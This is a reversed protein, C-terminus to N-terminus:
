VWCGRPLTAPGQIRWGAKTEKRDKSRAVKMEGGKTEDLTSEINGEGRRRPEGVQALHNAERQLLYNIPWCRRRHEGARGAEAVEHSRKKM